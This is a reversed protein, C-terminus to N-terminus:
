STVDQWQRIWTDRKADIEAPAVTLPKSPTKVYSTWGAPLAVTRDVPFVYMNDPMASQFPKSLMFRIFAQAGATNKAGKLVGAYEQEQFCTNQLATTTSRGGTVTDAPSTNYSLVIPRSGKGGGATYDVSWADNWGSTLKTGASKLKQWYGQWGSEGYTAITALLFAMGPSSTAAGPSVFLNKYAPKTLDALNAPPTRHHATFWANDVNVCVDSFDIPTLMRGAAGPVAYRGAGSPLTPSYSALAGSKAVRSAFTNDIGFTVDGTPNGKTLVLSNSLQGADGSAHVTVQYGTQKTFQALVGKPVTWSDHTVLVVTKSTASGGGGKASDSSGLACGALAPIGILAAALTASTMRRAM